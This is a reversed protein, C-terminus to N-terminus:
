ASKMDSIKVTITQATLDASLIQAKHDEGKTLGLAAYVDKGFHMFGYKNIACEVPFTASTPETQEPVQTEGANEDSEAVSRGKIKKAMREGGNIKLIAEESKALCRKDDRHPCKYYHSCSGDKSLVHNGLIACKHQQIPSLIPKSQLAHEKEAINLSTLVIYEASIDHNRRIKQNRNRQM